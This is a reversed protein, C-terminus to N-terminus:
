YLINQTQLKSYKIRTVNTKYILPMYLFLKSLIVNNTLLWLYRSQKNNHILFWRSWRRRSRWRGGRSLIYIIIILM